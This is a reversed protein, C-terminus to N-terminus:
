SKESRIVFRKCGCSIVPCFFTCCSQQNDTPQGNKPVGNAQRNLTNVTAQGNLPNGTPQVFIPTSQVTQGEIYQGNLSTNLSMASGIAQGNMQTGTAQGNIQNGPAQGNSQVGTSQGNMQVGTTQGNGGPNAAMNNCFEPESLEM